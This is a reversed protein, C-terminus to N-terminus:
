QEENPTESVPSGASAHTAHMSQRASARDRIAITRGLEAPHPLSEHAAKINSLRDFWDDPMASVRRQRLDVFLALFECTAAESCEVKKMRMFWHMRKRDHDILQTEISFPEDVLMEKLYSINAQVIFQSYSQKLVDAYEVGWVRYVDYFADDFCKLYFAVNMHGNEDTWSPLVKLGSSVIPTQIQV